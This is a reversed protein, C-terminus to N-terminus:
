LLFSILFFVFHNLEKFNKKFVVVNLIEWGGGAGVTSLVNGASIHVCM